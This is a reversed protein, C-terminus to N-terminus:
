ITAAAVTDSLFKQLRELENQSLNLQLKVQEEPRRATPVFSIFRVTAGWQTEILEVDLRWAETQQITQRTM